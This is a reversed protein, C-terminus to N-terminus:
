RVCLCGARHTLFCLPFFQIFVGDLADALAKPLGGARGAGPEGTVPIGIVEGYPAFAAASLPQVQLEM